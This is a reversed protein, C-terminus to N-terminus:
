SPRILLLSRSRRLFDELEPIELITQPPKYSLPPALAPVSGVISRKGKRPHRPPPPPPLTM